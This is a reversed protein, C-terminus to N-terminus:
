VDCSTFEFHQCRILTAQKRFKNASSKPNAKLKKLLISHSVTDFAQKFDLFIGICFEGNNLASGIKNTVHILHHETSKKAQFGYQHQHLLKNIDLHNSLKLAVMKELIKSFTKILSIPRYNDM